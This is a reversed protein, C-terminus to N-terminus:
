WEISGGPTKVVEVDEFAVGPLQCKGSQQKVYYNRTFHGFEVHLTNIHVKM